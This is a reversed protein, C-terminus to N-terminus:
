GFVMEAIRRQEEDEIEMIQASLTAPTHVVPQVMKEEAIALDAESPTTPQRRILSGLSRRGGESATATTPITTSVRKTPNTNARSLPRFAFRRSGLRAMGMGLVSRHRRKKDPLPSMPPLDAGVQDREEEEATPDPEAITSLLTGVHPPDTEGEPLSKVASSWVVEGTHHTIISPSDATSCVSADLDPIQDEKNDEDAPVPASLSNHTDTDIHLVLKSPPSPAPAPAPAPTSTSTSAPASVSIANVKEQEESKRNNAQDTEGDEAGAAVAAGADLWGTVLIKSKLREQADPEECLPNDSATWLDRGDKRKPLIIGTGATGLQAPRQFVAPQGIGPRFSQPTKPSPSPM